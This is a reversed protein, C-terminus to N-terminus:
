YLQLNCILNIQRNDNKKAKNLSISYYLLSNFIMNNMARLLESNSDWNYWQLDKQYISERIPMTGSIEQNAEEPTWKQVHVGHFWLNTSWVNKREAWAGLNDCGGEHHDAM